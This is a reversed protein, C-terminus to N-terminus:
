FYLDCQSIYDCNHPIFDCNHFSFDCQSIFDSNRSPKTVNHFIFDSNHSCFDCQSIYLRL